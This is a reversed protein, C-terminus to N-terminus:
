FKAKVGALVIGQEGAGIEAFARLNQSGGDLGLLSLQGTFYVRSNDSKDNLTYDERHDKFYMLGVAVKTYLGFHKKQVWYQKVAPMVGIYLRSREGEKVRTSRDVVDEGTRAFTVIGGVALRPNNLHYFYELGLTGFDRENAWERGTLADFIGNAIGHGIGDGIISIGVGYSVGIEHRPEDTQAKTSVTALTLAILLFFSKKM